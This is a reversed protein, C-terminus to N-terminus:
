RPCIVVLGDFVANIGNIMDEYSGEYKATDIRYEFDGHTNMEKDAIMLDEQISKVVEVLRYFKGTLLGIEDKTLLKSDTNFNLDGKIVNESIGMLAMIPRKIVSSIVLALVFALVVVLVAVLILITRASDASASAEESLNDASVKSLATLEATMDYGLNFAAAAPALLERAAMMNGARVQALIGPVHNNRYDNLHNRITTLSNQGSRVESPELSADGTLRQEYLGLYRLAEDFAANFSTIHGEAAQLNDSYLIAQRLFFRVDSLENQAELSYEKRRM